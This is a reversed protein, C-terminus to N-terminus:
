MKSGDCFTWLRVAKDYFSATVAAYRTTSPDITEDLAPVWEAGYAISSHEGSQKGYEAVVQPAGDAAQGDDHRLVKFGDYMAAVLVLSPNDPHFRIRWVGGGVSTECVSRKMNRLDWVRICDDYGGTWVHWQQARPQASICTVGVADHAKRQRWLPQPDNMTFAAFLGDDGGSLVLPHVSAPSHVVHVAWAECSHIQRQDVVTHDITSNPNSNTAATMTIVGKSDSSAVLLLEKENRNDHGTHVSLKLVDPSAAGGSAVKAYRLQTSSDPETRLLTDSACAAYIAGCPAPTVDLVANTDHVAQTTLSYTRPDADSSQCTVTASLVHFAGIRNNNVDSTDTTDTAQLAYTGVLVRQEISLSPPSGDLSDDGNRITPPGLLCVSDANHAAAIAAETTCTTSM